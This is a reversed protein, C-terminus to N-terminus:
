IAWENKDEGNGFRFSALMEALQIWSPMEHDRLGRRLGLNWDAHEESWCEAVTKDKKDSMRFLDPFQTALPCEGLWRDERFKIKRGNNVKFSIFKLFCNRHRAIDWGLAELLRGERPPIPSGFM